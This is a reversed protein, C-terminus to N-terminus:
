KSPHLFGHLIKKHSQLKSKYDEISIHNAFQESVEYMLKIYNSSPIYSYPLKIMFNDISDRTKNKDNSTDHLLLYVLVVFENLVNSNAISTSKDNVSPYQSKFVQCITDYNNLQNPFNVDICTKLVKVFDDYSQKRDISKTTKTNKNASSSKSKMSSLSTEVSSLRQEINNIKTQIDSLQHKHLEKMKLEIDQKLLNIHDNIQRVITDELDKLSNILEQELNPNAPPHSM